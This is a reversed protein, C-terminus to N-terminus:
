IGITEMWKYLWSAIKVLTLRNSIRAMSGFGPLDVLYVRYHKALAAVNRKWWLMSGSLGHILVLPQGEGMIWYRVPTDEILVIHTAVKREKAQLFIRKMSNKKRAQPFIRKM